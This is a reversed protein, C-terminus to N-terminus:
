PVCWARNEAEELDAPSTLASLTPVAVPEALAVLDVVDQVGPAPGGIEHELLGALEPSIAPESTWRWIGSGPTFRGGGGGRGAPTAPVPSQGTDLEVVPPRAFVRGGGGWAGAM